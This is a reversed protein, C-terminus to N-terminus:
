EKKCKKKGKKCRKKGKKAQKKKPEELKERVEQNKEEQQRELEKMEEDCKQEAVIKPVSIYKRKRGAKPPPRTFARPQRFTETPDLLEFSPATLTVVEHEVTPQVADDQSIKPTSVDVKQAEDTEGVEVGSVEGQEIQDTIVDGRPLAKAAKNLVELSILKDTYAHFTAKELVRRIISLTNENYQSMQILIFFAMNRRSQKIMNEQAVLALRQGYLLARVDERLSAYTERCMRPFTDRNYYKRNRLLTAMEERLQLVKAIINSNSFNDDTIVQDQKWRLLQNRVTAMIKVSSPPDYLGAARQAAELLKSGIERHLIFKTVVRSGDLHRKFVGELSKAYTSAEGLKEMWEDKQPENLGFPMFETYSEYLARGFTNSKDEPDGSNNIIAVHKDVIIYVEESEKYVKKAFRMVMEHHIIELMQLTVRTCVELSKV